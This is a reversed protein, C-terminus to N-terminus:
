SAFAKAHGNWEWYLQLSKGLACDSVKKCSSKEKLIKSSSIKSKGHLMFHFSGATKQNYQTISYM